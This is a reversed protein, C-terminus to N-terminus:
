LKRSMTLADSGDTYYKKRKADVSFGTRRYLAIAAVNSAGVELYAREAGRSRAAALSHSLLATGYGQRRKVPRTCLRHIHLEDAFLRCLIYAALEGAASVRVGFHFGHEHSLEEKLMGDTWPNRRGAAEVSRIQQVDAKGLPFCRVSRHYTKKM